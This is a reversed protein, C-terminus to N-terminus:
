KYQYIKCYTLLCQHARRICETNALELVLGLHILRRNIIQADVLACKIFSSRVNKELEELSESKVLPVKIKRFDIRVEKALYPFRAKGYEILADYARFTEGQRELNVISNLNDSQLKLNEWALLFLEQFAIEVEKITRKDEM